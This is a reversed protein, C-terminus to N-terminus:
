SSVVRKSHLLSRVRDALAPATLGILQRYASRSQATKAIEEGLNAAAVRCSTGERILTTAFGEYLPGPARHEEICVIGGTERAAALILDDDFPSLTHLSIVRARIGGENRLLDAAELTTQLMGGISLLAVDSGGRVLIGKGIRFKPETQHVVPEGAKELRLYCPGPWDVLARTALRTEVPDAPAVVALNPLARLIALDEVGHHTYGQPGYAMGGGVAVIKVNAEHYCVDNRIQELCRLTPFNAISYTFVVNGCHALGAALGTMNQEAVGVNVYRDPFREAFPEVVSYGLDGVLLFVREDEEALACLTEIFTTRM